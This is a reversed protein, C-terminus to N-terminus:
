LPRRKRGGEEFLGGKAEFLLRCRRRMDGISKDIFASPLKKATRDLRREFEQDSTHAIHKYQTNTQQTHTQRDTQQNTRNNPQM